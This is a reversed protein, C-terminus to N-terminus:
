AKRCPKGAGSRGQDQGIQVLSYLVSLLELYSAKNHRSGKFMISMSKAIGLVVSKPNGIIFAGTAAGIIILWEFPQILLTIEGGNGVYGGIVSVIVVAAGILVFM